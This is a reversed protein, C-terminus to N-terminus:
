RARQNRHRAPYRRRDAAARRAIRQKLSQGDYYSMAIFVRGDPTM